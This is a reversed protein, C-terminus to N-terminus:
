TYTGALQEIERGKHISANDLILLHRSRPLNQFLDDLWGIFLKRDCPGQFRDTVSFQIPCDRSGDQNCFSKFVENM